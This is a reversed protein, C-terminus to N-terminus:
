IKDFILDPNEISEKINMLFTVAEKGDILRHDYSLALYMMKRIVIENDVVVARDQINHLGLIAPQPFNIIPTSLMSGYIGGNSITFVGGDLDSMELKSDRAKQAYTAIDKEITAFTKSECERVVPVLLGKDTGVAVGIDYYNQEIIYDGEIRSNVKPAERLAKVVAKVFFSMFGLKVDNAKIFKEQHKKRLEIVASMDVENFTTLMATQQTAEVLRSSIKKRLPSMRKRTENHNITKDKFDEDAKNTKTIDVKEETAQRPPIVNKELKNNSSGKVTNDITAVLAGIEVEEDDGVIINIQGAAEATAESTIKDTELEYIPEDKEVFDGNSVLWKSIVASTISEGMSPINVNISMNNSAENKGSLM